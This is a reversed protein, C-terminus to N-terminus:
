IDSTSSSICERAEEKHSCGACRSHYNQLRVVEKRIEKTMFWYGAQLVDEQRLGM